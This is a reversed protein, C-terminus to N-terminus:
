AWATACPRTLALGLLLPGQTDRASKAQGSRDRAVLTHRLNLTLTHTSHRSRILEAADDVLDFKATRWYRYDSSIHWGPALDVGLGIIAQYAFAEVSTSFLDTEAGPDTIEYGVRAVGLGVGVYPHLALSLDFDYYLNAMLSTSDVDDNVGTNIAGRADTFEIIELENRRYAGELETRLGNSFAYGLYLSAVRFGLDYDVTALRRNIRSDRLAEDQTYVIGYGAGLYLGIERAQSTYPTIAGCCGLCLLAGQLLRRSLNLIPM